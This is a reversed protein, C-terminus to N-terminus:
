PLSQSKPFLASPPQPSQNLSPTKAHNLPNLIVSTKQLVQRSSPIRRFKTCLARFTMTMSLELLQILTSTPFPWKPIKLLPFYKRHQTKAQDQVSQLCSYIRTHTHISIHVVSHQQSQSHITLFPSVFRTTKM